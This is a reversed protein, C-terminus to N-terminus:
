KSESGGSRRKLREEYKRVLKKIWTGSCGYKEGIKDWGAGADHEQKLRPADAPGPKQPQSPTQAPAMTETTQAKKVKEAATRQWYAKNQEDQFKFLFREIVYNALYITAEIVEQKDEATMPQDYLQHLVMACHFAICASRARVNRRAPNNEKVSQDYQQDLWKKLPPFLYSLDIDTENCPVDNGNADTTYCYINRWNDIKNRFLNVEAADFELNELEKGAEPIATWAIRSLTGGELEKEIFRGTDGMTGTITYNLYIPYNGSKSTSLKNNQYVLGNEFAKRLHDTTIGGTGKLSNVLAKIESEFIYIHVEQNDALVDFMKARTLGIGATQIIAHPANKAKSPNNAEMLKTRDSAIVRDFLIHFLDEFKAKGQGWGGEIIVQLNPAHRKGDLYLARIKSFCLAGFMSLLHFLMPVQYGAPLNSLIFGLIAPFRTLSPREFKSDFDDIFDVGEGEDGGLGTGSSEPNGVQQDKVRYKQDIRRKEEYEAVTCKMDVYRKIGDRIMDCVSGIGKMYGYTEVASSRAQQLLDGPNQGSASVSFPGFGFNVREQGFRELRSQRRQGSRRPRREPLGSFSPVDIAPLGSGVMPFLGGLGQQLGQTLADMDNKQPHISNNSSNRAM